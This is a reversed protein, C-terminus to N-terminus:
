ICPLTLHLISVPQADRERHVKLFEDLELGATVRGDSDSNNTTHCWPKTVSNTSSMM